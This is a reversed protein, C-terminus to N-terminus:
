VQLLNTMRIFTEGEIHTVPDCQRFERSLLPLIEKVELIKQKLRTEFARRALDSELTFNGKKHLRMIM